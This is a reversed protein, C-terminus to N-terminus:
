ENKLIKIMEELKNIVTQKINAKQVELTEMNVKSYETNNMNDFTKSLKENINLLGTISCLTQINILSNLKAIMEDLNEFHDSIYSYNSIYQYITGSTKDEDIEVTLNIFENNAFPNQNKLKYTSSNIGVNTREFGLSLLYEDACYGEKIGIRYTPDYYDSHFPLSNVWENLAVELDEINKYDKHEFKAIGRRSDFCITGLYKHNQTKGSGPTIDYINYIKNAHELVFFKDKIDKLRM